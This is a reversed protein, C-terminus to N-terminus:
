RPRVPQFLGRAALGGSLALGGKESILLAETGPFDKILDLGKQGLIILPKTLAEAETATEALAAATRAEAVPLGDRPDILHGYRRGAIEWSRGMSGSTSLARDRLLLTGILKGGSKRIGVKWGEKGVPSGLAYISSGGFNVLARKVGARRLMEVARDVAYGKGIGGLDIRMGALVLEAEGSDYLRLKEQGVLRLTRALEGAEPVRGREAARQWLEMLPGVTIDFAGSSKPGFRLAITLLQFLEPDIKVKGQGARRNLLSVSSQPDYHSLTEELGHIERVARRAIKKGEELEPHYLTIDLLTGMQYHLEHVEHLAPEARVQSVYFVLLLFITWFGKM